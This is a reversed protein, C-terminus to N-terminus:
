AAARLYPRIKRELVVRARHLRSKVTGEAVGMRKAIELVQLGQIHYLSIVEWHDRSLFAMACRVRFRLESIELEQGPFPSNDPIREVLPPMDSYEDNECEYDLSVFEIRNRRRWGDRAQNKICVRLYVLLVIEDGPCASHLREWVRVIAEQAMDEADDLTSAFRMAYAVLHPRNQICFKNYFDALAPGTLADPRQNAAHAPIRM